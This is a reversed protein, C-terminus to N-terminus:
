WLSTTDVVYVRGSYKKVTEYMHQTGGPGDAGKRNWLCMFRVKEPGWALATYLQWLNARAFAHSGKSLPGLEEPMVLTRTNPNAKVKFYRETWKGPAFSVSKQLFTPEDFALRVEIKLGRAVCAEAFLLDGGCAGGCLALDEPGADLEDLKAAIAAAAIEEKEPPFRPEPRDPADIMHGSFLFVQRPTWTKDPPNLRNLARDLVALGTEVEDPRFGLDRLLVLQQRSSQLKFGDKDAVAVANKYATDVAQKVGVLVELDALTIRAWYDKPDKELAGRIAWRVGGEMEMRVDAMVDHASLHALLHLLTVANIGSYYHTPAKRFGTAYANIAERLTGIEAEAEVKMEDSTRGNQRWCDVWADKEVRGRMAWSEADDPFEKVLDEICERAYDHKKLRGLLLGKQRRSELDKPRIALANEYQALALKFQGVSRLAQGAKQLAEIHFVRTPAEDALVVIDGPRNKRRAIEIRDLWAEYQEWFEKAEEVRLSKWDPEDLYRLLHYVPSVKRGYWAAITAKAVEGLQQRDDELYQPDPVAPAPPNETVHYRVSRETLVDFPAQGRRCTIQVVGRKRLAHRVGLEYWVNPNDISLDAVVLDALLLEQFMDTRINGARLEEDARFVEFGAGELAPKILDCFVANFDIEEKVGFPMAVFAHHAM